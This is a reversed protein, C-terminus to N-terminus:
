VNKISNVKKPDSLIEKKIAVTLAEALTERVKESDYNLQINAYSDLVEKIIKMLNKM